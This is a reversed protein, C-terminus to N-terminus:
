NKTSAFISFLCAIGMPVFWLRQGTYAFLTLFGFVALCSLILLWSCFTRNKLLKM